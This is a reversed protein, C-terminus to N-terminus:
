SLDFNNRSEFLSKSPTRRPESHIRSKALFMSFANYFNSKFQNTGLVSRVKAANHKGQKDQMLNLWCNYGEEATVPNSRDYDEFFDVAYDEYAQEDEKVDKHDEAIRAEKLIKRMKILRQWPVIM